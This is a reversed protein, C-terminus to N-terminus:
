HSSNLRTSKRDEGADASRPRRDHAREREPDLALGRGFEAEEERHRRHEGGRAVIQELAVLRQRAVVPQRDRDAEHDREDDRQQHNAPEDANDRPVTERGEGPIPMTPPAQRKPPMALSRRPPSRWRM